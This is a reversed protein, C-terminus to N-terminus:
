KSVEEPITQELDLIGRVEDDDLAIARGAEKMAPDHSSFLVDGMQILNKTVDHAYTSDNMLSTAMEATIKNERILAELMGNSTSDNESMELKISDLSLVTSPDDAGEQAVSLRRLVSGLQIRIKNYETRIYPNGSVIYQSLNKHM